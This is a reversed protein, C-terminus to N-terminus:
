LVLPPDKTQVAALHTGVKVDLSAVTTVRMQVLLMSAPEVPLLKPRQYERARAETVEYPVDGNYLVNDLAKYLIEAGRPRM